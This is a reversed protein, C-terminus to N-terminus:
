RRTRAASRRRAVEERIYRSLVDPEDEEIAILVPEPLMRIQVMHSLITRTRTSIVLSEGMRQWGAYLEEVEAPPRELCIVADRPDIGDRFLKFAEAALQGPADRPRPEAPPPRSTLVRDVEEPDFLYRGDENRSPHLASGQLRRVTAISVRLLAAVETRTLWDAMGVESDDSEAPAAAAAPVREDSIEQTM